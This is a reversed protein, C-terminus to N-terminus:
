VGEVKNVRLLLHVLNMKVMFILMKAMFILMKVMFIGMGMVMMKKIRILSELSKQM